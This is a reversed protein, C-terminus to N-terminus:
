EPEALEPIDLIMIKQWIKGSLNTSITEVEDVAQLIVPDDFREAFLAAIKATLSLMESCYDLYRGLEDRTYVRKPSSATDARRSQRGDRSGSELHRDPDKTLQHMDVIHAVARLEKIFSLARRRKVRNEATVLFFLGAAIFVLDQIGSEITQVLEVAGGVDSALGTVVGQILMLAGVAVMAAMLWTATRLLLIPQEVWELRNKAREGIALLTGCVKSLGSGPFREHIRRQLTAITELIRDTDLSLSASDGSAVPPTPLPM